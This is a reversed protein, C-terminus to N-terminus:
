MVLLRARALRDPHSRTNYNPSLLRYVEAGPYNTDAALLNRFSENNLFILLFSICVEVVYFDMLTGLVVAVIM